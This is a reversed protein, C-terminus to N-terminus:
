GGLRIILWACFNLIFLYALGILLGVIGGVLPGFLLATGWENLDWRLRLGDYVARCLLYFAGGYMWVGLYIALFNIHLDILLDNWTHPATTVGIRFRTPPTPGKM